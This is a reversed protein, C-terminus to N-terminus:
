LGLEFVEDLELDFGQEYLAAAAAVLQELEEGKRASAVTCSRSGSKEGVIRDVVAHVSPNPGVELFFSCGLGLITEIARDFQLPSSVWRQWFDANLVAETMIRGDQSSVVSSTPTSSAIDGLEEGLAQGVAKAAPSHAAIPVHAIRTSFIRHSRLERRLDDLADMAGAMVRVGDGMGISRHVHPREDFFGAGLAADLESQLGVVSLLGGSDANNSCLRGYAAVVHAATEVDLAGAVTFAAIEGLSYGLLAAPPADLDEWFAALAIQYAFFTPYLVAPDSDFADAEPFEAVDIGLASFADFCEDAAEQFTDSEDYLVTGMGPWSSDPGSFLYVLQPPNSADAAERADTAVADLQRLLEDRNPATLAVRFPAAAARGALMACVEALDLDRRSLLTRIKEATPGVADATPAGFVVSYAARNDTM